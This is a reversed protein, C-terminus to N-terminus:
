FEEPEREEHPAPLQIRLGHVGRERDAKRDPVHAVLVAHGGPVQGCHRAMQLPTIDGMRREDLWTWYTPTGAMPGDEKIGREVRVWVWADYGYDALLRRNTLHSVNVGCEYTELVPLDLSPKANVPEIGRGGTRRGELFGATKRRRDEGLRIRELGIEQPSLLIPSQLDTLRDWCRWTWWADSLARHEEVEHFGLLRMVAQLSHSPANPLLTRALDLTDESMAAYRLMAHHTGGLMRLDFQINHGVVVIDPTIAECFLRCMDESFPKGRLDSERIGTLMTIGAPLDCGPDLLEDCAMWPEGNRLLIAGIEIVRADAGLGTTETDVVLMECEAAGRVFEPLSVLPIGKYDAM